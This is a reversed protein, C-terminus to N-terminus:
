VKKYICFKYNYEHYERQEGDKEYWIEWEQMKDLNPFYTDVHKYACDVKTVYSIDCYPLLSEYIQGGGIIHYNIPNNPSIAGLFQRIFDMTVFLVGKDNIEYPKDIKSTIVINIRYPLPKASLSEYTKRGMIVVSNATKERFFRMDEPISVLLEGEYGIGWNNDICVIASVM